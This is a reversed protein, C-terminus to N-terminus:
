RGARRWVSWVLCGAGLGLLMVLISPEPVIALIQGRYQSLDAAFSSNGYAATDYPQQPVGHLPDPPYIDRAIWIGALEWDTGNKKHFLGGGSDGPVAQMEDDGAGGFRDFDMALAHTRYPSGTDVVLTGDVDNKGWRKTRGSLLEFGRYAETGTEKEWMGNWWTESSAQNTGYGIGVVRAGDAPASQSIVLDYLGVPAATLRFLGLDAPTGSNDPDHLLQWSGPEMGYVVGGFDVTGGGVHGATLVWRDGLYVATGATGMRAGVNAWGPDDGPADTNGSGARIVTAASPTALLTALMLFVVGYVGIRNVARFRAM